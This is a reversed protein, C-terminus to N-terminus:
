SSSLSPPRRSRKPKLKGDPGFVNPRFDNAEIRARVIIAHEGAKKYLNVVRKEKESWVQFAEKVLSTETANGYRKCLEPYVAQMFENALTECVFTAAKSPGALRTHCGLYLEDHEDAYHLSGAVGNGPRVGIYYYNIEM